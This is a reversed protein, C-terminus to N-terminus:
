IDFDFIKGEPSYDFILAEDVDEASAFYFPPLKKFSKKELFENLTKNDPFNIGNVFISHFFMYSKGMASDSDEFYLDKGRKILDDHREEGSFNVLREGGIGEPVLQYIGGKKKLDM